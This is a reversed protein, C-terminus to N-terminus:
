RTSIGLLRAATERQQEVPPLNQPVPPLVRTRFLLSERAEQERHALAQSRHQLEKIRLLQSDTELQLLILRAEARVQRRM